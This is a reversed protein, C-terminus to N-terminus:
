EVNTVSRESLDLVVVGRESDEVVRLDDSNDVMLDFVQENYVELYSMSLRCDPLTELLHAFTMPIIGLKHGNDGFMTYSKGAGTIGYAFVTSNYGNSFHETLPRIAKQFVQQNSCNDGFVYDFNMSSCRGESDM